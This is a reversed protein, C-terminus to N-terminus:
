RNYANLNRYIIIYVYQFKSDEFDDFIIQLNTRM